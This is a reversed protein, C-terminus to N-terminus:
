LREIKAEYVKITHILSLHEDENPQNQYNKFDLQYKLPIEEM